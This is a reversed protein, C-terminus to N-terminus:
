KKDGKSWGDIIVQKSRALTLKNEAVDKTITSGAGITACKGVKLPSILNCGAGIFAGEKVITHKKEVGNHNCTITGAGITVERELDTDGIFSHHNIRCGEGVNSSKIEVFNGIQVNNAIRSDPRVRGYPGIFCDIGVISKEVLSYPKVETGSGITCDNLISHAGVLVNDGLVVDGEIIVNIDIVVNVGCILNGRINIREPDLIKVGSNIAAIAKDLLIKKQKKVEILHISDM